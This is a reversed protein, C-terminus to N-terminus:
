RAKTVYALMEAVLVPREGGEVFVEVATRVVASGEGKPEIAKVVFAGRIRAQVPVPGALRLRDLGYNVVIFGPDVALLGKALPTLLSTTLYGHAIPVGYPSHAACWAPDVHLPNHDGTADAFADIRGQEILLWESTHSKGVLHGLHDLNV